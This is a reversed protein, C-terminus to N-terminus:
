KQIVPLYQFRTAFLNLTLTASQAVDDGNEVPKLLEARVKVVGVAKNVKTFTVVLKGAANTTGQVVEAGNVTGQQGDGDVGIRVQKGAVPNGREDLVTATLSSTSGNGLNVPSAALNIQSAM